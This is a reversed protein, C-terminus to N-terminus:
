RLPFKVCFDKGYPVNCSMCSMNVDEWVCFMTTRKPLIWFTSFMALQWLMPVMSKFELWCQVTVSADCYLYSIQWKCNWLIRTCFEIQKMGRTLFKIKGVCFRLIYVCFLGGCQKAIIHMLRTVWTFSVHWEDSHAMYCIQVHCTFWGFSGHLVESHSMYIMRILWTVCRFSGNLAHSHNKDYM